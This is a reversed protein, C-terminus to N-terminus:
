PHPMKLVQAPAGPFATHALMSPETMRGWLPAQSPDLRELRAFLDKRHSPNLISRLGYSM